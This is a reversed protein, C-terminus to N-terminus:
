IQLRGCMKRVRNRASDSFPMGQPDIEGRVLNIRSRFRAARSKTVRSCYIVFTIAVVVVVVSIISLTVPYRNCAARCIVLRRFPLVVIPALLYFECQARSFGRSFGRCRIYTLSASLWIMRRPLSLHQRLVSARTPHTILSLLHPSIPNFTPHFGEGLPTSRLQLAYAAATHLM